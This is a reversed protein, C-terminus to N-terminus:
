AVRGHADRDHGGNAGSDFGVLVDSDRGGMADANYGGDAGRTAVRPVVRIPLGSVEMSGVTGVVTSRVMPVVISAVISALRPVDIFVATGVVMSGVTLLM